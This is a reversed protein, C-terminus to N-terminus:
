RAVVLWIIAVLSGGLGVLMPIAYPRRERSALAWALSNCSTYALAGLAALAVSGGLAADALLLVGGVVLAVATGYEALWHWAMLSGTSTERARLRGDPAVFGRGARIDLSWIAAMAIGMVVAFVGIALSM